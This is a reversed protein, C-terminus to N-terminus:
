GWRLVKKTVPFFQLLSKSTVRWGLFYAAHMVKFLGLPHLGLMQVFELVHVIHLVQLPHLVDRAGVPLFQNFSLVLMKTQPHHTGVVDFVFPLRFQTVAEAHFGIHPDGFAVQTFAPHAKKQFFAILQHSLATRLPAVEVGVAVLKQTNGGRHLCQQVLFFNLALHHRRSFPLLFFGVKRGHVGWDEMNDARSGMLQHGM